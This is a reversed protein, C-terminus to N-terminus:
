LVAQVLECLLVVQEGLVVRPCQVGEVEFSFIEFLELFEDFLLPFLLYLDLPFQGFEHLLLFM